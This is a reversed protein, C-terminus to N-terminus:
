FLNAADAFTQSKYEWKWIANILFREGTVDSVGQWLALLFTRQYIVSSLGLTLVRSNRRFSIMEFSKHQNSHAHNLESIM